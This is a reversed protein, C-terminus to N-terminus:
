LLPLHNPHNFMPSNHPHFSLLIVVICSLTVIAAKEIMVVSMQLDFLLRVPLRGYSCFPFPLTQFRREELHCLFLPSKNLPNERASSDLVCRHLLSASNRAILISRNSYLYFPLLLIYWLSAQLYLRAVNFHHIFSWGKSSCTHEREYVQNRRIQM